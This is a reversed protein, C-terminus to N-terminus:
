ICDHVKRQTFPMPNVGISLQIILLQNRLSLFHPIKIRKLGKKQAKSVNKGIDKLWGNKKKENSREHRAMYEKASVAEPNM